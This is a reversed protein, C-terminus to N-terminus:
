RCLSAATLPAALRQPARAAIAIPGRGRSVFSLEPRELPRGATAIPGPGRSRLPLDLRDPARAATAVPGPGRSGLPLHLSDLSRGATAVPGAEKSVFSLVVREPAKRDTSILLLPCIHGVKHPSKANIHHTIFLAPVGSGLFIRCMQGRKARRAGRVTM